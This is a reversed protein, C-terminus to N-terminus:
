AHKTTPFTPSSSKGIQEGNSEDSTRFSDLSQTNTRTTSERTATVADLGLPIPILSLANRQTSAPDCTRMVDTMVSSRSFVILSGFLGAVTGETSSMTVHEIQPWLSSRHDLRARSPHSATSHPYQASAHYSPPCVSGFSIRRSDVSSRAVPRLSDIFAFNPNQYVYRNYDCPRRM